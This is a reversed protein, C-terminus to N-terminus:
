SSGGKKNIAEIIERLKLVRSNTRVSMEEKEVIKQNRGWLGGSIVFSFRTSM